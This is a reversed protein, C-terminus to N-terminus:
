ALGLVRVGHEQLDEGEGSEGAYREGSSIQGVKGDAGGCGSHVHLQLVHDATLAAQLVDGPLVAQQHDETAIGSGEDDAALAAFAPLVAIAGQGFSAGRLLDAERQHVAVVGLAVVTVAVGVHLVLVFLVVITTAVQQVLAMRQGIGETGAGRGMDEEEVLVHLQDVFARDVIVHFTGVAHFLRPQPVGDGGYHFPACRFRGGRAVDPAAHLPLSAQVSLIPSFYKANGVLRGPQGHRFALDQQGPLTAPAHSRTYM